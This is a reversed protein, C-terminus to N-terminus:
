VVCVATIDLNAGEMAFKNSCGKSLNFHWCLPKGEATKLKLGILEYPVKAPEKDGFRAKQTGKRSDDMIEKVSTGNRSFPLHHM